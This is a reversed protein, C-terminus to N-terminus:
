GAKLEALEAELAEIRAVRRAEKKEAKAKAQEAVVEDWMPNLEANMAKKLEDKRNKYAIILEEVKTM